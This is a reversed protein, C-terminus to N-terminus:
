IKKTYIIDSKQYGLKDFMTSLDMGVNMIFSNYDINHKREAIEEVTQLMTKGIGKKRYIPKLYMAHSTLIKKDAFLPHVGIVGLYYGVCMKKGFKGHKWVSVTVLYNAKELTEYLDGNIKITEPLPEDSQKKLENWHAQLMTDASMADKMFSTEEITFDNDTWYFKGNQNVKLIYKM